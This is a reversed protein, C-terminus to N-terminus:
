LKLYNSLEREVIDLDHAVFGVGGSRVIEDLFERQSPRVRAQANKKVEIALFRGDPLIGLIDSVGNLDYKSKKRFRNGRPDYVAGSNNRWSKIKHFRLFELISNQIEQESLARKIEKM